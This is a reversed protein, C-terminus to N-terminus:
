EAVPMLWEGVIGSHGAVPILWDAVRLRYKRPVRAMYQTSRTYAQETTHTVSATVSATRYVSGTFTTDDPVPREQCDCWLGWDWFVSAFSCALCALCMEAVRESWTGSAHPSGRTVASRCSFWPQQLQNVLMLCAARQNIHVPGDWSSCSAMIGSGTKSGCSHPSGTRQMSSYQTLTVQAHYMVFM